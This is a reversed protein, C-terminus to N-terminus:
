RLALHQEEFSELAVQPLPERPRRPAQLRPAAVPGDLQDLVEALPAPPQQEVALRRPLRRQRRVDGLREYLWLAVLRDVRGPGARRRSRRGPEVERGLQEFPKR